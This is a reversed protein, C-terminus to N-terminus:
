IKDSGNLVTAYALNHHYVCKLSTSHSQLVEEIKMAINYTEKLYKNFWLIYVTEIHLSMYGIERGYIIIDEKMQVLWHVCHVHQICIFLGLTIYKITPKYLLYIGLKIACFAHWCVDITFHAPTM